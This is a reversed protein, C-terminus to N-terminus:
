VGLMRRPVASHRDGVAIRETPGDNVIRIGDDDAEVSWSVEGTTSSARSDEVNNNGLVYRM